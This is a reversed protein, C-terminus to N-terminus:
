DCSSCPLETTAAGACGDPSLKLDLKKVWEHRRLSFSAQDGAPLSQLRLAHNQLGGRERGGSPGQLILEGFRDSFVDGRRDAFPLSAGRGAPFTGRKKDGPNGVHRESLLSFGAEWAEWPGRIFDRVKSRSAERRPRAAVRPDAQSLPPVASRPPPSAPDVPLPLVSPEPAEPPVDPLAAPPWPAEAPVLVPPLSPLASGLQVSCPSESM